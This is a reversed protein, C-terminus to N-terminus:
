LDNESSLIGLIFRVWPVLLDTLRPTGRSNESM